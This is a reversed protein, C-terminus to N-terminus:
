PAGESEQKTKARVEDGSVFQLPIKKEFASLSKQIKKCAAGNRGSIRAFPSEGDIRLIERKRIKTPCAHPAISM